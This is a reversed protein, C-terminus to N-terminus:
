IPDYCESIISIVIMLLRLIIIINSNFWFHPNRQVLDDLRLSINDGKLISTALVKRYCKEVFGIM